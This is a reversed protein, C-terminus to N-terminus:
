PSSLCAGLSALKSRFNDYKRELFHWGTMRSDGQAGLAAVALSAGARINESELDARTLSEVGEILAVRGEVTIRAGMKALEDAYRLRDDFIREEIRSTGRATCLVSALPPQLDTPFGPEPDTAVEVAAPRTPCAVRIANEERFVQAGAKELVDLLAALSQPAIEEVRVDGRTACGALLFTGGELRDSPMKHACPGELADVGEVRLTAGGMGSVRAGMKELLHCFSIVDPEQSANEIVTAGKALVAGLLAHFTAGPSRFKPNLIIEAGRLGDTSACITDGSLDTAAGLARYVDLIYDVPRSGLYCGGPSSVCARGMRALLPGMVYFSGRMKKVLEAPPTDTKLGENQIIAIERAAMTVRLGLARLIDLMLAIDAVPPLSELRCEGRMLLCAALAPLSGNATGSLRVSGSLRRGGTIIITDSETKTVAAACKTAM